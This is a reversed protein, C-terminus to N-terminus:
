LAGPKGSGVPGGIYSPHGLWEESQAALAYDSVTVSEAACTVSFLLVIFASVRVSMGADDRPLPPEVLAAVAFKRAQAAIYM